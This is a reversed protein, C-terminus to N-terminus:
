GNVRSEARRREDKKRKKKEDVVTIKTVGTPQPWSAAIMDWCGCAFSASFFMSIQFTHRGVTGSVKRINCYPALLKAEEVQCTLFSMLRRVSARPLPVLIIESM